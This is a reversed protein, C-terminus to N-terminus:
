QFPDCQCNGGVKPFSLLIETILGIGHILVLIFNFPLRRQGDGNSSNSRSKSSNLEVKVPAACDDPVNVADPLMVVTRTECVAVSSRFPLTNIAPPQPRM